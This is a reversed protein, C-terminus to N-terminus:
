SKSRPIPPHPFALVTRRSICLIIISNHIRDFLARLNPDRSHSFYPPDSPSSPPLLAVTLLSEEWAAPSVQAYPRLPTRIKTDLVHEYQVVHYQVVESTSYSFISNPAPGICISAPQPLGNKPEIYYHSWVFYICRNNGLLQLHARNATSSSVPPTINPMVVASSNSKCVSSPIQSNGPAM